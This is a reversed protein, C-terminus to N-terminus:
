LLNGGGSTVGYPVAGTAKGVDNTIRELRDKEASESEQVRTYAEDAHAYTSIAAAMEGFLRKTTNKYDTM